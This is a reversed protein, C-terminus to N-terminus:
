RAPTACCHGAAQPELVQRLCLIACGGGHAQAAAARPAPAPHLLGLLVQAPGPLGLRRQWPAVMVRVLLMRLVWTGPVASLVGAEARRTRWGCPLMRRGRARLVAPAEHLPDAVQLQHEHHHGHQCSDCREALVSHWVQAAAEGPHILWPWRRDQMDSIPQQKLRSDLVLWGSAAKSPAACRRELRRHVSM